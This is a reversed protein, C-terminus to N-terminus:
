ASLCVSIKGGVSSFSGHGSMEIDENACGGRGERTAIIRITLDGEEGRKM